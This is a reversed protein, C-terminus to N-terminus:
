LLRSSREHDSDLCWRVMEVTWSPGGESCVVTDWQLAKAAVRVVMIGGSEGM